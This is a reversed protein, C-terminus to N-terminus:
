IGYIELNTDKKDPIQYLQLNTDQIKDKYRTNHNKYEPKKRKSDKYRTYKYIQTEYSSDRVITPEYRTYWHMQYKTEPKEYKKDEYRQITYM